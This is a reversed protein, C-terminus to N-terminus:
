GGIIKDASAIVCVSNECKPVINVYYVCEVIPCKKLDVSSCKNEISWVTIEAAATKNVVRNGCSSPCCDGIFSATVVCDDDTQCTYNTKFFPKQTNQVCGSLLILGILALVLYKM